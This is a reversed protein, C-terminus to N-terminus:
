RGVSQQSNVTSQRSNIAKEYVKITNAVSDEISFQKFAKERASAALRKRMPDDRLLTEFARVLAGPDAAKVLIGDEGDSIIEALGGVNSAICPRGSAMAEVLSLGFGEDVSPITYIDILGLYKELNKEGASFFMRETLGTEKVQKEIAAKEPGEGVILLQADYGLLLLRRFAEILYKHGKVPSLRGIAGIVPVGEHLGIERSFADDKVAPGGRYRELGIGNYVLHVQEKPTGFDCILHRAVSGSIAVTENGWCPLLRRALRRHKFFGHCTTVYPIGTMKSIIAAMVHTIRTQAHIVDFRENEVLRKLKPLAKWMKFGFEAKARIDMKIHPIGATPLDEELRGGGSVV